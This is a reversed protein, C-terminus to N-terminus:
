ASEKQMSQGCEGCFKMPKAFTAHCHPCVLGDPKPETKKDPKPAKALKPPPLKAKVAEMGALNEALERQLSQKTAQYDADSLKGLRYEFQLDRLNEYIRAKREEFPKLPSEPEPVPLDRERVFFTFALALLSLLVAATTIM